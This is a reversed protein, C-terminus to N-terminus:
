FFNLYYSAVNAHRRYRWGAAASDTFRLYETARSQGPLTYEVRVVADVSSGFSLLPKSVRVSHLTINSADALETLAAVDGADAPDVDDIMQSISSGMQSLLETRIAAELDPDDVEGITLFRLVLFAALIVLALPGKALPIKVESDPM